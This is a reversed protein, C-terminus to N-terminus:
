YYAGCIFHVEESYSGAEASGSAKAGYTITSVDASTQAGNQYLILQAGASARDLSGFTGASADSFDAPVVAAGATDPDSVTMGFGETGIGTLSITASGTSALLYTTATSKYLGADTSGDGTGYAAWYYGSSSASTSTSITHTATSYAGGPFLSGIDVTNSSISCNVTPVDTVTASVTVIDNSVLELDFTSSDITAGSSSTVTTPHSGATDDTGIVGAATGNALQLGYTTGGTLAGVNSVTITDSSSAGSGATCTATLASGSNPLVADIDWNTGTLDVISSSVATITLAGQTRCWNGDDADPFVISVTGATPITQTPAFAILYEVTASSGNINAQMRSLYFYVSTLSDANAVFRPIVFLLAFGLVLTILVPRILSKM